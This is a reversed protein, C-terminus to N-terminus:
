RSIDVLVKNLQIDLNPIIIIYSEILKNTSSDVINLYNIQPNFILHNLFLLLSKEVEKNSLDYYKFQNSYDEDDDYNELTEDRIIKISISEEDQVDVLEFIKNQSFTQIVKQILPTDDESNNIKITLTKPSKAQSNNRKEDLLKQTLPLTFIELDHSKTLDFISSQIKSQLKAEIFKNNNSYLRKCTQSLNKIDDLTDLHTAIILIVNLPLNIFTITEVPQCNSKVQLLFNISENDMAITLKSILISSAVLLLFKLKKM